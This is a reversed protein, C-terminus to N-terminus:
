HHHVPKTSQAAAQHHNPTFKSEFQLHLTQFPQPNTITCTQNNTQLQNGHPTSKHHHPNHHNFTPSRTFQNSQLSSGHHTSHSNSSHCLKPAAHSPKRASKTAQKHNCTLPYKFALQPSSSSFPSYCSSLITTDSDLTLPPHHHQFGFNFPSPPRCPQRTSKAEGVFDFFFLLYFWFYFYFYIIIFIFL